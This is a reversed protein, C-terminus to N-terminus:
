LIWRLITDGKYGKQWIIWMYDVKRKYLYAIKVEGDYLGEKGNRKVWRLNPM